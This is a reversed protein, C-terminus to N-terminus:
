EFGIEREKEKALFKVAIPWELAMQVRLNSRGEITEARKVVRIHPPANQRCNNHGSNIRRRSMKNIM